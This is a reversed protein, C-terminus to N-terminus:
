LQFLFEAWRNENQLRGRWQGPMLVLGRATFGGRGDPVLETAIPTMPHNLMEISLSVATSPLPELSIHLDYSTGPGRVIEATVSSFGDTRITLVQGPLGDGQTSLEIDGRKTLVAAAFFVVIALVITGLTLAVPTAGSKHAPQMVERRDM